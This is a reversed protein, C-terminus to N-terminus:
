PKLIAPKATEKLGNEQGWIEKKRREEEARRHEAGVKKLYAAQQFLREAIEERTMEPVDPTEPAGTEPDPDSVGNPLEAGAEDAPRQAQETRVSQPHEILDWVPGYAGTRRRAYGKQELERLLAAIRDRPLNLEKALVNEHFEWGDPRTLMTVYLALQMPEMCGDRTVEVPLPVFPGRDKNREIM